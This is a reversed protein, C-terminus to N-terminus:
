ATRTLSGTVAGSPTIRLDLQIRVSGSPGQVDTLVRTGDLGTVRGSLWSTAGHPLLGVVSDTM